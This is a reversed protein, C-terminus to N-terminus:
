SRGRPTAIPFTTLTVRAQLMCYLFVVQQGAVAWSTVVPAVAIYPISPPCMMRKKTKASQDTQLTCEPLFVTKRTKDYRASALRKPLTHIRTRTIQCGIVCVITADKTQALPMCAIDKFPCDAHVTLQERQFLEVRMQGEKRPFFILRRGGAIWLGGNSLCPPSHFWPTRLHIEGILQLPLKGKRVLRGPVLALRQIM